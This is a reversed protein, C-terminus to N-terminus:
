TQRRRAVRRRLLAAVPLTLLLLTGPEPTVTVNDLPQVTGAGSGFLSQISLIDRPFLFATGLGSYTWILSANMISPEGEYHALGLAHGLEHVMVALFDVAHPSPDDGLGWYFSADHQTALHIDRALGGPAWPFYAHASTTQDHHGIRIDPTGAASYEDDSPPPGADPAEFFHIPAHAAWLALAEETAVRMEAPTLVTQLRGDFLNAYSYTLAIPEARAPWAQFLLVAVLIGCTKGLNDRRSPLFARTGRTVAM